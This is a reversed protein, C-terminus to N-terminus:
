PAKDDDVISTLALSASNAEATGVRSGAILTCRSVVEVASEAVSACTTTRSAVRGGVASGALCPVVQLNRDAGVQALHTGSSAEGTGRVIVAGGAQSAVVEVEVVVLALTTSTGITATLTDILGVTKRASRTVFQM